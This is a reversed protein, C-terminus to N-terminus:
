DLGLPKRGAVAKMLANEEEEKERTKGTTEKKM